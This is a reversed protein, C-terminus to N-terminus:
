LSLIKTVSTWNKVFFSNFYDSLSFLMFLLLGFFLIKTFIDVWYMIRVHRRAAPLTEPPENLIYIRAARVCSEFYEYLDIDDGHLFYSQYERANLKDRIEKINNNVFDWQNNAYYEFVEFGKQIRQQVRCMVPKYGALFILADIFYAPITHLFFVCINHHLRSKKMSGGPYWVVGNLPVKETVKRGIEIIEAWSVKFDSSSTLNYVRKEQDKLYIFNWTCTLIANVVLDASVYDAYGNENCYMTRIVGKGAGILLGTPGNINDTWGPLPEKWVPVVISPRLIVAPIYPMAEEVLSESLSKTFAYTNPLNGLIKDTIAEVVDEDMWEVCTIIKHPDAPPAYPKEELLKEELHCYATSIHGFFLLNKIEKALEVILKTGRTNTLVAKKLPEDFRVTAAAHYIINIKEILLQRDLLSIGLGPLQVDGNILTVSKCMADLGKQARVKDFLPSNFIENLRQEPEKGKKPRVLLYIHGINPLCRLLKEVIVKGLFGTGGTLLIHQGQFVDAIRDPLEEVKKSAM